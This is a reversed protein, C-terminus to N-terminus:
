TEVAPTESLVARASCRNHLPTLDSRQWCGRSLGLRGKTASLIRRYIAIAEAPRGRREEVRALGLPANWDGPVLRAAERFHTEAVDPLKLKDLAIDGARLLMTARRTGAESKPLSGDDRAAALLDEYAAGVDGSRLELDSKFGLALQRFPPGLTVLAAYDARARTLHGLRRLLNARSALATGAKPDLELARDLDALAAEVEGARESELARQVFPTPDRPSVQMARDLDARAETSRGLVQNITVRLALADGTMPGALRIATEIDALAPDLQNLTPPAYSGPSGGRGPKLEAGAQVVQLFRMLSRYFAAKQREAESGHIDLVRGCAREAASLESRTLVATKVREDACVAMDANLDASARTTSTLVLVGVLVTSLAVTRIM